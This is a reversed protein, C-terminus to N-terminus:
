DSINENKEFEGIVRDLGNGISSFKILRYEHGDEEWGKDLNIQIFSEPLCDQIREPWEILTIGSSYFYEELGLESIESDDELRYADMHYFPCRGQYENIITFTPSTVHDEVKLGKALGKAFLTKGAGLEGTLGIVTGPPLYSAFREGLARTEEPENTRVIYL